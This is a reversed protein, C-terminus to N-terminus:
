PSRKYSDKSTRFSLFCINPDPLGFAHQRRSCEPSGIIVHLSYYALARCFSSCAHFEVSEQLMVLDLPHQGFAYSCQDLRRLMAAADDCWFSCRFSDADPAENTEPLPGVCSSVLQVRHPDNKMRYVLTRQSQM